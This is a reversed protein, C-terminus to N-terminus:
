YPSGNSLSRWGEAAAAALALAHGAGDDPGKEFDGESQAMQNTVLAFCVIPRSCAQAYAFLGAIEM